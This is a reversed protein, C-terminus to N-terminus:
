RISFKGDRLSKSQEKNLRSQKQGQGLITGLIVEHETISAGRWSTESFNIMLEHMGGEYRRM